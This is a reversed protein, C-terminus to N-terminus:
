SNKQKPLDGEKYYIKGERGQLTSTNINTLSGLHKCISPTLHLTNNIIDKNDVLPL